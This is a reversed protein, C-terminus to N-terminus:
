PQRSPRSAPTRLASQGRSAGGPRPRRRGRPMMAWRAGSVAVLLTTKLKARREDAQRPQLPLGPQLRHHEDGQARCGEVPARALVLPGFIGGLGGPAILVALCGLHDVAAFNAMTVFSFATLAPESGWPGGPGEEGTTVETEAISGPAAGRRVTRPRVEDREVYRRAPLPHRRRTRRLAHPTSASRVAARPGSRRATSSASCRWRLPSHGPSSLCDRQGTCPHGQYHPGWSVLGDVSRGPEGSAAPRWRFRRRPIRRRPRRHCHNGAM